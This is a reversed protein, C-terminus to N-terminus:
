SKSKNLYLQIPKSEIEIYLYIGDATNLKLNKNSGSRNIKGQLDPRYYPAQQVLAATPSNANQTNPIRLREIREQLDPRYNSTKKHLEAFTTVSTKKHTGPM